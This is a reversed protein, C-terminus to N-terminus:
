YTFVIRCMGWEFLEAPPIVREYSAPFYLRLQKAYLSDSQSSCERRAGNRRDNTRVALNYASFAEKDVEHPKTPNVPVHTLRLKALIENRVAALRREQLVSDAACSAGVAPQDINVAFPSNFLDGGMARPLVWLLLVLDIIGVM